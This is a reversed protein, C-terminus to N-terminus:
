FIKQHCIAAVSQHLHKLKFRYYKYRILHNILSLIFNIYKNVYSGNVIKYYIIDDNLWIICYYLINIVLIVLLSILQFTSNMFIKGIPKTPFLISFLRELSIFVNIWASYSPLMYSLTDTLRCYAADVISTRLISVLAMVLILTDSLIKVVFMNNTNIRLSNNRLKMSLFIGISILNFISGIALIAIFFKTQDDM